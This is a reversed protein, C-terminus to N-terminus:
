KIKEIDKKTKNFAAYAGYILMCAIALYIYWAIQEGAIVVYMAPLIFWFLTSLIPIHLSKRNSYNRVIWGM